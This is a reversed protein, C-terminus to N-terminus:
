PYNNYVIANSYQFRSELRGAVHRMWANHMASSLVGLHFPQANPVILASGSAIIDPSVFGVPIYRRTESSVKPILLYRTSPQRIEGFLMPTKALERTQERGSGERFRRVSEIRARLLPSAHVMAPPADVLWLCWRETGNLFKDGGYIVRIYPAIGPCEALLADRHERSLLLGAEDGAKRDKDIMMSGYSIAPAGNIPERRSTIVLDPADTLYPNINKAALAHGESQPTEYDFLVKAPVDFAGFGIIVVHVHAKGRAESEWAFTRHAFHIKLHWRQLLDAWLVSVQEGQTISNTAVFACRIGTM